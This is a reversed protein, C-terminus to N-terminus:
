FCLKNLKNRIEDTSKLPVPTTILLCPLHQQWQDDWLTRVKAVISEPLYDMAIEDGAKPILARGLKALEWTMLFPEGHNGSLWELTKEYADYNHLSRVSYLLSQTVALRKQIDVSSQAINMDLHLIHECQTVLKHLQSTSLTGNFGAHAISSNNGVPSSERMRSTLDVGYVVNETREGGISISNLCRWLGTNPRGQKFWYRLLVEQQVSMEAAIGLMRLIHVSLKGANAYFVDDPQNSNRDIGMIADLLLIVTLVSFAEVVATSNGTTPSQIQMLRAGQGEFWHKLYARTLKIWMKDIENYDCERRTRRYLENVPSQFGSLFCCLYFLVGVNGYDQKIQPYDWQLMDECQKKIQTCQAQLQWAKRRDTETNGRMRQIDDKAQKNSMRYMEMVGSWLLKNINDWNVDSSCCRNFEYYASHVEKTLNQRERRMGKLVARVQHHLRKSVEASVVEGLRAEDSRETFLLIMEGQPYVEAIYRLM